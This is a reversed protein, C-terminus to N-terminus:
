LSGYKFYQRFNKKEEKKRIETAAKEAENTTIMFFNLYIFILYHNFFKISYVLKRKYALFDYWFSVSIQPPLIKNKCFDYFHNLNIRSFKVSFYKCYSVFIEQFERNYFIKYKKIM